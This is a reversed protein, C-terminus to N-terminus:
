LGFLEAATAANCGVRGVFWARPTVRAVVMLNQADGLQVECRGGCGRDERRM